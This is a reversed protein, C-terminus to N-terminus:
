RANEAIDPRLVHLVERKIALFEQSLVSDWHRPRPLSVKVEYIIRGPRASMMVVRDGLLIAEDVDHTVLLVTPRLRQWLNLLFNQMDARTNADLAGFPEDMLLIKPETILARAIACRQQMGGSLQYPAANAFEDLDMISLYHDIRTEYDERRIKQLNLGFGINQSVSLWPFLQAEQFVVARDASPGLIEQGDIGLRGMTPAEFGALLNLLTTKGCGSPGVLAVFEGDHVTLSVRDLALVAASGEGYSKSADEISIM